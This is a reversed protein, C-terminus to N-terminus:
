FSRRLEFGGEEGFLVFLRETRAPEVVLLAIAFPGAVEAIPRTVADDPGIVVARGVLRLRQALDDLHAVGGGEECRAAPCRACLANELRASGCSSWFFATFSRGPAQHWANSDDGALLSAVRCDLTPAFREPNSREARLSSPPRDLTM